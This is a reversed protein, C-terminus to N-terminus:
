LLVASENPLCCNERGTMSEREGSGRKRKVTTPSWWQRWWGLTWSFFAAAAALFRTESMIFITFTRNRTRTRLSKKIDEVCSPNLHRLTWKKVISEVKEGQSKWMTRVGLSFFLLSNGAKLPVVPDALDHLSFVKKTQNKADKALKRTVIYAWATSSSSGFINWLFNPDHLWLWHKRKKRKWLWQLRLMLRAEAAEVEKSSVCLWWLESKPFPPPSSSFCDTLDFPVVKIYQLDLRRPPRVVPVGMLCGFSWKSRLSQPRKTTPPIIILLISPSKFAAAITWPDAEPGNNNAGMWLLTRCKLGLM